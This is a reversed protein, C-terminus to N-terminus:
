DAFTTKRKREQALRELDFYAYTIGSSFLDSQALITGNEALINHAAFVLDTTSEGNGCDAYLYATMTKASQASVLTRRYDAKGIIENSASLNAIVTAGSLSAHTSPSLPIWVDECIETGLLFLPNSKDAILINTGFPVAANNEDIYISNIEDRDAPAFHRREYFESYTPIYTKPVLALINGRHLIAACNYTAGNDVLPLGVLILANLEATEACIRKLASLAGDLLTRQLFLDGCTYATICLEPFVILQAGGAAAKKALDIIADANANCDAVVVDPSACAARFFGYNM